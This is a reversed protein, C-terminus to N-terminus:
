AAVKWAIRATAFVVLMFGIQSLLFPSSAVRDLMAGDPASSATVAFNHLVNTLILVITACIGAKPRVFLLMAVLPDLITLSSWYAASGWGVGGYDWWLGHRLLMRVHNLGGVMLCAAWLSRVILSSRPV